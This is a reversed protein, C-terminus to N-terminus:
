GLNCCTNFNEPTIGKLVKSKPRLQPYIRHNERTKPRNPRFLPKYYVARGIIWQLNYLLKAPHIELGDYSSVGLGPYENTVVPQYLTITIGIVPYTM